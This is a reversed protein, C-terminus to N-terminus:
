RVPSPVNAPIFQVCTPSAAAFSDGAPTLLGTTPDIWFPVVTDTYQNACLLVRGEPDIAFNRPWAGGGPQNGVLEVRGDREDIRFIAISDLGRNSLYVFQGDPHVHVDAPYNREGPVADGLTDAVQLEESEGTAPDYAYVVMTSNLEGAVYLRRGDPSFALHRPGTGPPTVIDLRPLAELRGAGTGVRYVLIRDLGLDCVVVRAGTPDFTASHAHPGEQREPDVSSGHHQVVDTRERVPGNPGLAILSTAGGGYNAVVAHRGDPSVSVHCPGDSGTEVTGSVKLDAGQLSLSHLAGRRGEPTEISGTAYAATGAPSFALFSPNPLDPLATVRRLTAQETDLEALIVGAGTGQRPTSTGILLARTHSQAM